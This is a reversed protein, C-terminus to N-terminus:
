KRCLVVGLSASSIGLVSAILIAGKSISWFYAFVSSYENAKHPMDNWQNTAHIYQFVVMEVFLLIGLIILLIGFLRKTKM